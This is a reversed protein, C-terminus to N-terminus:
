KRVRGEGWLLLKSLGEKRLIDGGDDVGFAEVSFM